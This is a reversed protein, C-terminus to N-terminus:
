ATPGHIRGTERPHLSSTRFVLNFRQKLTHLRSLEEALEVRRGVLYTKKIDQDQSWDDLIEKVERELRRQETNSIQQRLASTSLDLMKKLRYFLVVNQCELDSDSTFGQKYSQYYSQCEQSAQLLRELYFERFVARWEKYITDNSVNELQKLELNRKVVTIDEDTLTASHDESQSLIKRFENQLNESVLNDYVPNQWKLWKDFFGPGRAAQQFLLSKQKPHHKLIVLAERTKNLYTQTAIRM